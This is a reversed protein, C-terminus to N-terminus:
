DRSRHPRGSGFRSGPHRGQFGMKGPDFDQWREPGYDMTPRTERMDQMYPNVLNPDPVKPMGLDDKYGPVKPVNPLFPPPRYTYNLVHGGRPDRSFPTSIPSNIRQGMVGANVQAKTTGLAGQRQQNANPSNYNHGGGSYNGGGGRSQGSSQGASRGDIGGPNAKSGSAAGTNGGGGGGSYNGGGGSSSGGGGMSGGGPSTGGSNAAGGPGAPMYSPIGKFRDQIVQKTTDGGRFKVSKNNDHPATSAM